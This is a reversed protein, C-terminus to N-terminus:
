AEVWDMGLVYLWWWAVMGGIRGEGVRRRSVREVVRVVGRKVWLM